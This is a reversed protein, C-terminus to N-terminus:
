EMVKFGNVWGQYIYIGALVLGFVVVVVTLTKGWFDIRDLRSAVATQESVAVNDTLHIQDDEHSSVTKRWVFLALVGLALIAWVIAFPVFNIQM